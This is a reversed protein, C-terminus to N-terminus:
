DIEGNLTREVSIIYYTLLIDVEMLLDLFLWDLYVDQREPM